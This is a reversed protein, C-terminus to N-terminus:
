GDERQSQREAETCARILELSEPDHCVGETNCDIIHLIWTCDLKIVLTHKHKVMHLCVKLPFSCTVTLSQGTSSQFVATYAM